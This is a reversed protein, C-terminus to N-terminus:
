RDLHTNEVFSNHGGMLVCGCLGRVIGFSVDQVLAIAATHILDLVLVCAYCCHWFRWRLLLM